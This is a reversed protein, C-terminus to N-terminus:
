PSWKTVSGPGSEIGYEFIKEITNKRLFSVTRAAAAAFSCVNASAAPSKM